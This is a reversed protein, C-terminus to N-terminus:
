RFEVCGSAIKTFCYRTTNCLGAPLFIRDPSVSLITSSPIVSFCVTVGSSRLATRADCKPNSIYFRAVSTFRAVRALSRKASIRVLRSKKRWDSDGRKYWASKQAENMLIQYANPQFISLKMYSIIEAAVAVVMQCAGKADIKYASMIENMSANLASRLGAKVTNYLLENKGCVICVDRCRAQLSVLTGMVSASEEIASLQSKITYQGSACPKIQSASAAIALGIPFRGVLSSQREILRANASVSQFCSDIVLTKWKVNAQSSQKEYKLIRDDFGVKRRRM